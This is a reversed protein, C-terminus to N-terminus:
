RGVAHRISWYCRDQAVGGHKRAALDAAYQDLAAHVAALQDNQERMIATAEILAKNIQDITTPLSPSDGGELPVDGGVIKNPALTKGYRSKLAECWKCPVTCTSPVGDLTYTRGAVDAWVGETALYEGRWGCSACTYCAYRAGILDFPGSPTDCRPCAISPSGDGVGRRGDPDTAPSPSPDDSAATAPHPRSDASKFISRLTFM